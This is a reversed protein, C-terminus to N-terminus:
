YLLSVHLFRTIRKAKASRLMDFRICRKQVEKAGPHQIEKGFFTQQVIDPNQPAGGASPFGRKHPEESWIHQQGKVCIACALLASFEILAHLFEPNNVISSRM